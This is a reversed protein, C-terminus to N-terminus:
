KYKKELSKRVVLEQFIMFINSASLYLAVVSSILAIPFLVLPFIYRAQTNMSKALDSQFSGDSKTPKPLALNTQIFQTIVAILALLVSRQLLSIGLFSMVVTPAHIFSYLISPDITPLGSRFVRYLEILIPLQIILLLLGSFPNIDREKYLKMLAQAQLQRDTIDKKIKTVEPEIKKMLLQTKIMKRSLPLLIFRILITLVVVALGASHGPIIAILGILANYLPIYLITAFFGHSM